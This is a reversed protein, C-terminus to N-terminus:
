AHTPGIMIASTSHASLARVRAEELPRVVGRRAERRIGRHARRGGRLRPLNQVHRGLRRSSLLGVAAAGVAGRRRRSTSRDRYRHGIVGDGPLVRGANATEVLSDDATLAHASDKKRSTPSCASTSRASIRRYRLSQRLEVRYTREDAVHAFVFGEVRHAPAVRWRWPSRPRSNAGALIQIGLPASVARRVEQGIWALRRSSKQDPRVRLYPRDHTNEFLLGHFGASV